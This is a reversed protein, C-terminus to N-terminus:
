PIVEASAVRHIPDVMPLGVAQGAADVAVPGLAKKATNAPGLNAVMVVDRPRIQDTIRLFARPAFVVAPNIIPPLDL